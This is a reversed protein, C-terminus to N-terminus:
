APSRAYVAVRWVRSGGRHLQEFGADAILRDIEAQRHIYFDDRRRLLWSFGNQSAYTQAQDIHRDRLKVGKEFQRKNGRDAQPRAQKTGIRRGQGRQGAPLGDQAIAAGARRAAGKQGGSITIAALEYFL